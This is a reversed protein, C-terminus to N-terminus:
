NYLWDPANKIRKEKMKFDSCLVQLDKKISERIKNQFKVKHIRLYAIMQSTENDIRITLMKHQKTYCIYRM